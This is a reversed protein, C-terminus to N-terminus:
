AGAKVESLFLSDTGWSPVHAHIRATPRRKASVALNLMQQAHLSLDLSLAHLMGFIRERIPASEDHSSCVRLSKQM